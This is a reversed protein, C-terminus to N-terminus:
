KQPLSGDVKSLGALVLRASKLTLLARSIYVEVIRGASSDVWYSIRKTVHKQAREAEKSFSQEVRTLSESSARECGIPM